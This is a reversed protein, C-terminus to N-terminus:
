LKKQNLCYDLFNRLGNVNADMTEIPNKRYYIPSAITAAHIIYQFDGIDDPLLNIVDHKVIKLNPNVNLQELWSPVGRM